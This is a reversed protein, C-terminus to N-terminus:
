RGKWQPERKQLFATVGEVTDETELCMGLQGHLYDLGRPVGHGPLRLLLGQWPAHHGTLGERGRRCARRDGPGARRGARRPERDGV